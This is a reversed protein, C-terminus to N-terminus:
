PSLTFMFDDIIVILTIQKCVCGSLALEGSVTGVKKKKEEEMDNSRQYFWWGTVLDAALLDAKEMELSRGVLQRAHETSSSSSSSASVLKFCIMSVINFAIM